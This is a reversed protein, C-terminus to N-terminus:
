IRCSDPVARNLGAKSCCFMSPSARSYSKVSKGGSSKYVENYFILFSLQYIVETGCVGHLIPQTYGVSCNLLGSIFKPNTKELSRCPFFGEM